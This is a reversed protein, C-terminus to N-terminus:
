EYSSFYHNEIQFMPEGYESFDEANFFIVYTNTRNIAEEIVLQRVDDTVTCRDVRGNWMSSFQNPQYITEYASDPFHESLIRNLIVDIVMRKGLECEGEAEAITTLAILEIEDDSLNIDPEVVDASVTEIVLPTPTLTEINDSKDRALVFSTCIGFVITIILVVFIVGTKRRM